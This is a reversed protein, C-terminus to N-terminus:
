PVVPATVVPPPAAKAAQAKAAQAENQVRARHAFQIAKILEEDGLAHLRYVLRVAQYTTKGVIAIGFGGALMLLVALVKLAM